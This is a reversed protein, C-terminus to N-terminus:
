YRHHHRHPIETAYGTVPQSWQPAPAIYATQPQPQYVPAATQYYSAPLPLVYEEIPGVGNGYQEALTQPVGNKTPTPTTVKAGKKAKSGKSGM